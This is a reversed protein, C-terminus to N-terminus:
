RIKRPLLPDYRLRSKKSYFNLHAVKISSLEFSPDIQPGKVTLECATIAVFDEDTLHSSNLLHDHETFAVASYGRKKYEEKVAEPTARGDSRTTHCHLNAKYYNKTEDLYIKM